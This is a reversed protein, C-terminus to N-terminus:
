KGVVQFNVVGCDSASRYVERSDESFLLRLSYAKIYYENKELTEELPSLREGSETERKVTDGDSLHTLDLALYDCASRLRGAYYVENDTLSLTDESVAVGLAAKGAAAAARAVFEELEDISEDFVELGLLLIDDAGQEAAESILSLEYSKYVERLKADECRFSTIYLYACLYGDRSHASEAVSSFLHESDFSDFGLAEATASYYELGGDSNRLKVSLDVIGQRVYDAASHGKPLRYAEVSRVKKGNSDYEVRDLDFHKGADVRDARRGLLIGVATSIVVCLVLFVAASIVIPAVSRKHSSMATRRSYKNIRRNAM